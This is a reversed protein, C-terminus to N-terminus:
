FRYGVNLAINTINDYERTLVPDGPPFDQWQQGDLLDSKTATFYLECGVTFRTKIRVSVGLGAFATNITSKSTNEADTEYVGDMGAKLKSLIASKGLAPDIGNFLTAYTENNGNLADVKVKYNFVSIGFFAHIGVLPRSSPLWLSFKPAFSFENISTKYNYFVQDANSAPVFQGNRIYGPQVSGTNTRVLAAYKDAWADNMRYNTAPLWNMGRATGHSYGANLSFWSTFSRSICVGANLGFGGHVDSKLQLTGLKIGAEWRYKNTNVTDSKKQAVAGFSFFTLIIATLTKIQM